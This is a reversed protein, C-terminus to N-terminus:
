GVGYIRYMEDYNKKRESEATDVGPKLIDKQYVQELESFELIDQALNDYWINSPDESLDKVIKKFNKKTYIYDMTYMSSLKSSKRSADDDMRFEIHENDASRQM